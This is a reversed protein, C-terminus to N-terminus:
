EAYGRRAPLAREGLAGFVAAVKGSFDVILIATQRAAHKV